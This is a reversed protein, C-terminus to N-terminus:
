LSHRRLFPLAFELALDSRYFAGLHGVGPLRAMRACPVHDVTTETARDPDEKEGTLMLLPVRFRKLVARPGNWRLWAVGDLAYMLPDGERVNRDIGEPFRDNEKTMFHELDQRVGGAAVDKQIEATEDVRPLDSLNRFRLTGTGVLCRLRDPHAGGFGVGVLMGNSYGWFAISDIGLADLVAAVDDVFLEMRHDDIGSPRGSRGRGRQDLLITTFGTLGRVYGAERWIRSDGGAGTHLLVAPGTGEVEYHIEVGHSTITPM